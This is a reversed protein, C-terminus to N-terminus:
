PDCSYSYFHTKLKLKNCTPAFPGGHGNRRFGGEMASKGKGINMEIRMRTIGLVIVITDNHKGSGVGTDAGSHGPYYGSVKDDPNDPVWALTLWLTDSIDTVIVKFRVYLM